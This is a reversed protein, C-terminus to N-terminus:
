FRYGATLGTVFLHKRSDMSFRTSQIGNRMTAGGSLELYNYKAMLGVLAGNSFDTAWEFLTEFWIGTISQGEIETILPQQRLQSDLRSLTLPSAVVDLRVVSGVFRDHRYYVGLYPIHVQFHDHFTGSPTPVQVSSYNLDCYRYGAILGATYPIGPFGFTYIAALDAEIQRAQTDWSRSIRELIFNSRIERPINIWGQIRVALDPSVSTQGQVEFVMSDLGIEKKAPAFNANDGDRFLIQNFGFSYGFGGEVLSKEPSPHGSFSSMHQASASMPMMLLAAFLTLLIWSQARSEAL